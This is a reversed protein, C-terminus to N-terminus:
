KPAGLKSLLLSRHDDLYDGEQLGYCPVSCSACVSNRRRDTALLRLFAKRREGQWIDKLSNEAVQGLVIPIDSSCCPLVQGGPDLVLMYFPMSCIDAERKHGQKCRDFDGGQGLEKIFPIAYEINVHDARPTFLEAFLAADDTASDLAVDIIKIYVETEKKHEYFYSLNALFQPYDLDVQAVKKYKASDTGQISIKLRDVGAAILGDAMKKNLLSANTVIEVRDAVKKEKAYAVMACIEPHLLPEGHGAFILAKLKQPFSSVEDIAKQYVEWAMVQRKFGKAKLAEQDLAYLCYSCRFNCAYIPFVHLAFPARLPLHDILQTRAITM